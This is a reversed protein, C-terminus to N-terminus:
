EWAEQAGSQVGQQLVAAEEKADKDGKIEKLRASIEAKAIKDLSGLFVEEGGHEEELEALSVAATKRWKAFHTELGAIFAAFQPHEHITTKLESAPVRLQSYGSRVIPQRESVHVRDGFRGIEISHRRTDCYSVSLVNRSVYYLADQRYRVGLDCAADFPLAAAWGPEAHLTHPSYGTLRHVWPSRQRLERELDLDAAENEAPTWKEGTTAHATIIVFEDPWALGHEVAQFHTDRYEAHM